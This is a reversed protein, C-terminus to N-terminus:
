DQDGGLVFRVLDDADMDDVDGDDSEPVHEEPRDAREAAEALLDMLGLSRLQDFSVSALFKRVRTEEASASASAPAEAEDGFLERHLHAAVAQSTPHDFVLTSPLRLGTREGLVNRVEVAALSDVGMDRFAQSPEIDGPEGYGLLEAAVTRVLQLLADRREAPELGALEQHLTAEAVVADRESGAASLAQRVEPLESLLASERPLTFTQAFRNWDFDAALVSGRVGLARGFAVMAEAPVLPVLGHRQMHELMDGQLAMGAEGWVGWGISVGPLGRRERDEALANLYANAAAYASLKGSGLMGSVSSYLVFFDLERDGVLEDLHRAGAVKSKLVGEVEDLTLAVVDAGDQAVGAAHVVGRLPHEAPIAALVAAVQDRDSVDCAVVSVEAGRGTLEEALEAAGPADPGRRSTLVLRRVGADALWRATEVGLAGTGGTILVTGPGALAPTVTPTEAATTRRLRRGLLRGDRLAVQDEGDLGRLVHPLHGLDAEGPDAPLDVLGGWAAARELAVTRGFGWVAAQDVTDAAAARNEVALAERTLCWLRAEIGARALAQVLVATLVVGAPATPAADIPRTRLALLSVVGDFPGPLEGIRAALAAPDPDTVTLVSVDGPLAGLVRASWDDGDGPVVALWRGPEVSGAPPKLPTWDIRYWWRDVAAETRLKERWSTLAPLVADLASRDVDLASALVEGDTAAVLGWLRADAASEGAEVATPPAPEPWYNKRQFAYTPLPVRATVGAREYFAGWDITVGQAHAGAVATVMRRWDGEGTHLTEQFVLPEGTRDMTQELALKLVPNPSPEVFASAGGAVMADAAAGFLVTQRLNRYWYRADLEATDLLGGTVSSYFPVASSRPTVPALLELLDDELLEVQPSHAAFNVGALRWRMMGAVSLRKELKAMATEDASVTVLKPGNVAAISVDDGAIARVEDAPAVVSLMVGTRALKQRILRSRLAVVRAGDQLSLGGAVCAAAIEGQSHGAVAAPEVGFARWLAALSVMVAWLAPQVIDVEELADADDLVDLLSWDVFEALAAACEAMTAAFVPSAALLDKAMGAWQSGQGPFVFAPTRTGFARGTVVDPAAEGAAVATLAATLGARDEGVLVARHPFATRGSLARGVASVDQDTVHALLREAQGRLAGATRGSLVWPVISPPRVPAPAPVPAPGAELVAHANTGSIGFSSVAARRVRGTEPWPRAEALVEVGSDDWDVHSSRADAHLSRPLVGHRMALVMKIIGAVGAAAQTHGINSKVSGIPLPDERDRGYTAILAQAEIPDGLATGTGHAEVADIDTTSLGSAALAQRIVRQQAPGNPATLGNSAGDSNVATGRVVALIEHGNRIADSQRELVLMGAGEAFGLGDADDSFAKCRGDPALGRQRSFGVFTGPTAMVTVGGALALECEGGRLAQAALHLTVLSSSCATDVTLTPGEFGFTYAVRGSAVSPSSGNSEYGDTDALHNLTLGYDNYMVGVFVGTRSGRLSVPDIGAREVAEWGTELLLRQQADTALAERPNMGFFEPDFEGADHLFGGERTYTTGPHDPDPHYLSAIDWGRNAPFATIADREETLLRWLDEPSSVGGPFRCSMGVIVIPDGAVAAPAPTEDAVAGSGLLADLLHEGLAAVTPYDFVATAGLRVGTAGDLRNRLELATL